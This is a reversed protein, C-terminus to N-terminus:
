GYGTAISGLELDAVADVDGRQGAHRVVAPAVEDHNPPGACRVTVGHLRAM